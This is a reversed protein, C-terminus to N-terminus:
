DAADIYLISDDHIVKGDFDGALKLGEQDYKGESWQEFTPKQGYVLTFAKKAKMFVCRTMNVTPTGGGDPATGAAAVSWVNNSVIIKVGLYNLIRGNSIVSDSGYEAANTFQSSNRLAKLQQPGIVLVYPEANTNQWPNKTGSSRTFTSGSYYYAYKGRILSEANNIDEIALVDAAILGSDATKSGSYIVMAGAVTSTTMTAGTSITEAIFGDVLDGFAFSLEEMKDKVLTRRNVRNGFRSILSNKYRRTPAITVGDILNTGYQSIAATTPETTDFGVTAARDFYKRKNVIYQANGEDLMRVDVVSSWLMEDLAANSLEGQWEVGQNVYGTFSSGQSTTSSVENSFIASKFPQIM